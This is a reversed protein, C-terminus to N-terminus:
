EETKEAEVKPMSKKARRRSKSTEETEEIFDAECEIAHVWVKPGPRELDKIDQESLMCVKENKEVVHSNFTMKGYPHIKKLRLKYPMLKKEM